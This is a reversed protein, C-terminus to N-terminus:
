LNTNKQVLAPSNPIGFRALKFEVHVKRLALAAGVRVEAVEGPEAGKSM